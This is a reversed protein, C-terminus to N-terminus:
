DRKLGLEMLRGTLEVADEAAKTIAAADSAGPGQGIKHELLFARGVIVQLSNGLEHAVSGTVERLAELQRAADASV